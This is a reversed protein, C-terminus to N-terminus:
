TALLTQGATAQALEDSWGAVLGALNANAATAAEARLTVEIAQIIAEFSLQRSRLLADAAEAVESHPAADLGLSSRGVHRYVQVVLELTKRLRERKPSAERGAADLFPSIVGALQQGSWDPDCLVAWLAARFAQFEADLYDTARALSGDSMAAAKALLQPERSPEAIELLRRMVDSALPRFRIVQARSRITPLQRQESTGILIILSRPPPEELTKLLANAGEQNLYDADEILAIKRGGPSPKMAIDHCLGERMRQEKRGILLEIPISSKGSPLRVCHLDPHTAARTQQCAACTHCANLESDPVNACLLCQALRHAFRAKGIGAPGVFLFTSALRGSGVAARFGDAIEDHGDVDMWTM